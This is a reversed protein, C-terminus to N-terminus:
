PKAPSKRSCGYMLNKSEKWTHRWYAVKRWLPSYESQGQIGPEERVASSAVPVRRADAPRAPYQFVYSNCICLCLWVKKPVPVAWFGRRNKKFAKLHLCKSKQCRMQMEKYLRETPLTFHILIKRDVGSSTGIIFSEELLAFACQDGPLIATLL